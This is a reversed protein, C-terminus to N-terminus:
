RFKGSTIEELLIQASNSHSSEIYSKLTKIAMEKENMKVLSKAFIIWSQEIDSNINNTILAYNYAQHYDGLEYYKKAVFLSLAPNNNKKFRKIIEAIDDKTNRRKISIKQVPDVVEDEVVEIEQETVEEQLPEGKKTEKYQNTNQTVIPNSSHNNYYPQTSSQMKKMFGLSPELKMTDNHIVPKPTSPVIPKLPKKKLVQPEPKPKKVVVAQPKQTAVIVPPNKKEVSEENLAFMLVSVIIVLSLVIVAHPIYSKIKYYLWRKELDNIDLM